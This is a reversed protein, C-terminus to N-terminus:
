ACLMWEVGVRVYMRVHSVVPIGGLLAGHVVVHVASNIRYPSNCPRSFTAGGQPRRPLVLRLGETHGQDRTTKSDLGTSLIRNM